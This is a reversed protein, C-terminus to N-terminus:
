KKIIENKSLYFNQTHKMGNDSDSNFILSVSFYSNSNEDEIDKLSQNDLKTTVNIEFDKQTLSDITYTNQTDDGIDQTENLTVVFSYDTHFIGLSNLSMFEPKVHFVVVADLNENNISVNTLEISQFVDIPSLTMQNESLFTSNICTKNEISCTQQSSVKKLNFGLSIMLAIILILCFFKGKKKIFTTM